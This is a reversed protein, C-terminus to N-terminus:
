EREKKGEIIFTHFVFENLAVTKKERWPHLIEAFPHDGLLSLLHLDIILDTLSESRCGTSVESVPIYAISM